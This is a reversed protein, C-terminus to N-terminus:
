REKKGECVFGVSVESSGKVGGGGRGGGEDLDEDISGEGDDLRSIGLTEVLLSSRSLDLLESSDRGRVLLGVRRLDHDLRVLQAHLSSHLLDKPVQNLLSKNRNLHTQGRLNNATSPLIFLSSSSLDRTPSTSNQQWLKRALARERERWRVRRSCDREIPPVNSLSLFM